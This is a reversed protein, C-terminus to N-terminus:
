PRPCDERWIPLSTLLVRGAAILRRGTAIHNAMRIPRGEINSRPLALVFTIDPPLWGASRLTVVRALLQGRGLGDRWVGPSAGHLGFAATSLDICILRRAQGPAKRCGAGMAAGRRSLGAAFSHRRMFFGLSVKHIYPFYC